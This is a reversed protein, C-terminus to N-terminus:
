AVDACSHAMQPAAVTEPQVTFVTGPEWCLPAARDVCRGPGVHENQGQAVWERYAALFVRGTAQQDAKVPVARLMRRYKGSCFEDYQLPQLPQSDSLQELIVLEVRGRGRTRGGGFRVRSFVRTKLLDEDITKRNVSAGQAIEFYGVVHVDSPDADRSLRVRPLMVMVEHLSAEETAMREPDTSQAAESGLVISRFAADSWYRGEGGKEWWWLQSHDEAVPGAAKCPHKAEALETPHKATPIIPTRGDFSLFLTGFHKASKGCLATGAQVYHAHDYTPYCEEALAKTMAAWLLRGPVYLLTREVMGHTGAGVQLPSLLRFTVKYRVPPAEAM